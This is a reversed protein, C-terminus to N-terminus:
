QSSGRAPANREIIIDRGSMRISYGPLSERRALAEYVRQQGEEFGHFQYRARGYQEADMRIAAIADRFTQRAGSVSADGTPTFNSAGARDFVVGYTDGEIREIELSYRGSPNEFEYVAGEYGEDIERVKQVGAPSPSGDPANPISRRIQPFSPQSTYGDPLGARRILGGYASDLQGAPARWGYASEGFQLADSRLAEAVRRLASTAAGASTDGPPYLVESGNRHRTFSVSAHGGPTRPPSVHVAYQEGAVDFSYVRAGRPGIVPSWQREGPRLAASGGSSPGPDPAVPRAEIPPMEPRMPNRVPPRLAGPRPAPEAMPARMPARGPMASRGGVGLTALSLAGMAGQEIGERPRNDAFAAASRRVSPLGTMELGQNGADAFQNTPAQYAPAERPSQQLRAYEREQEQRTPLPRLDERRVTPAYQGAVSQMSNPDIAPPRTTFRDRTAAFPDREGPSYVGARIRNIIERDNM